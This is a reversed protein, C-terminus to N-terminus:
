KSPEPTYLVLELIANKLVKVEAELKSKLEFTRDILKEIREVEKYIVGGTEALYMAKREYERKIELRYEEIQKEKELVLSKKIQIHDNIEM